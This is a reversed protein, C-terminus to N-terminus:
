EPGERLNDAFEPMAMCRSFVRDVQPLCSLDIGCRWAANAHPAFICDTLTPTDGYCFGGIGQEHLCAEFQILGTSYQEMLWMQRANSGFRNQLDRLVSLNTLPGGSTAILQSMQRVRARGAPDAPVLRPANRTEDLYEIIGLSQRLILGDIRLVPLLRLPNILQFNPDNQAGTRIDIPETKYSVKKLALAIRVRQCSPSRAYDYLVVSDSETRNAAEDVM